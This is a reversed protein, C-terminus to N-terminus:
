LAMNSTRQELAKMFGNMPALDLMHQSASTVVRKWIFSSSCTLWRGSSGADGAHACWVAFRHGCNNVILRWLMCVLPRRLRLMIHWKVLWLSMCSYVICLHPWKMSRWEAVPPWAYKTDRWRHNPRQVRSSSTGLETSVCQATVKALRESCYIHRPWWANCNPVLILQSTFLCVTRHVPGTYQDQPM